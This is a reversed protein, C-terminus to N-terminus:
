EALGSSHIVLQGPAGCAVCKKSKRHGCVPRISEWLDGSSYLTRRSARRCTRKGSMQPQGPVVVSPAFQRPMGPRWIKARISPIDDKTPNALIPSFARHVWRYYRLTEPSVGKLFTREQLFRDFLDM